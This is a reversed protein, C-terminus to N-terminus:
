EVRHPLFKVHPKSGPPVSADWVLLMDGCARREYRPAPFPKVLLETPCGLFFWSTFERGHVPHDYRDPLRDKSPLPTRGWGRAPGIVVGFDSFDWGMVGGKTAVIEAGAYMRTPALRGPVDSRCVISAMAENPRAAEVLEDICREGRAYEVSDARAELLLWAAPVVALAAFASGIPGAPILSAGLVVAFVLFRPYILYTGSEMLPAVLYAVICATTMVPAAGRVAVVGIARLSAKRRSWRPVQRAFRWVTFSVALAFFSALTWWAPLLRGDRGFATLLTPIMAVREGPGPGPWHYDLEARFADTLTFDRLWLAFAGATVLAAAVLPAIASARFARRGAHTLVIAVAGPLAVAWAVLHATYALVIAVFVLLGSSWTRRTGHHVAAALAIPLIAAGYTLATFGFATTIGFVALMAFAGALPNRRRSAALVGAGVPVLALALATACAVARLPSLVTMFLRALAFYLTYPALLQVRYAEAPAGHELYNILLAHQTLDLAPLRGVTALAVWTGTSLCALVIAGAIRTRRRVSTRDGRLLSAMRWM